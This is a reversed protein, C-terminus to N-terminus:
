ILARACAEDLEAQTPSTLSVGLLSLLDDLSIGAKNLLTGIRLPDSASPCFGNGQIGLYPLLTSVKSESFEVMSDHHTLAGDSLGLPGSDDIVTYISRGAH